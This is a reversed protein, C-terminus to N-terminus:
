NGRGPKGEMAHPPFVICTPTKERKLSLVDSLPM